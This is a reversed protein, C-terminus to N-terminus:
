RIDWPVVIDKETVAYVDETPALILGKQINLKPYSDRFLANRRNQQLESSPMMLIVANKETM